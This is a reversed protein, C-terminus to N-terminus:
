RPGSSPVVVSWTPARPTEAFAGQHGALVVHPVAGCRVGVPGRRRRGGSRRGDDVEPPVAHRDAGDLREPRPPQGTQLALQGLAGALELLGAGARRVGLQELLLAPERLEGGLGAGRLGVRARAGRDPLRHRSRLGRRRAGCRGARPLGSRGRTRRRHRLVRLLRELLDGDHEGAAARVPRVLVHGVVRHVDVRGQEAVPEGRLVQRRERVDLDDRGRIGLVVAGCRDRGGRGTVVLLVPVRLVWRSRRPGNRGPGRRRPGRGLVIRRGGGHRGACGLPELQQLGPLVAAARVAGPPEQQQRHERGQRRARATRARLVGGAGGCRGNGCWGYRCSEDVGVTGM